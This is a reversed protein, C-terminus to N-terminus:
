TSLGGDVAIVQGTLYRAGPGALFRVLPAIEEPTGLRRLPIQERAADLVKPDLGATMETTVFGPAVANVRIARRGMERALTRTLGIVAAKSASYNAQGPNGRLGSVSAINVISGSRQPMMLALARLDFYRRAEPYASLYIQFGRDVTFAGHETEVRDSAVRGGVRDSGELVTVDHGAAALTRAAALGAMGAGIVTITRQGSAM